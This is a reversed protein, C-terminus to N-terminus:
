SSSGHLESRAIENEATACCRWLIVWLLTAKSLSSLTLPTVPPRRRTLSAPGADQDRRLCGLIDSSCNWARSYEFLAVLNDVISHSQAAFLAHTPDGAAAPQRALWSFGGM